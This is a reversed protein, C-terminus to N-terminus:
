VSLKLVMKFRKRNQDIKVVYLKGNMWEFDFQSLPGAGLKSLRNQEKKTLRKVPPVLIMHGQRVSAVVPSMLFYFEKSTMPQTIVKKLSDFKSNL